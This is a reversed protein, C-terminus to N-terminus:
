TFTKSIKRCINCILRLIHSEHAKYLELLVLLHYFLLEPFGTMSSNLTANATNKQASFHGKEWFLPCQTELFFCMKELRQPQEPICVFCYSEPCYKHSNEVKKVYDRQLCQGSTLMWNVPPSTKDHLQSASVSGWASPQRHLPLLLLSSCHPKKSSMFLPLSTLTLHVSIVHLTVSNNATM